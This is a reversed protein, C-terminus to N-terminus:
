AAIEQDFTAQLPTGSKPAAEITFRWSGVDLEVPSVFHGVSLRTADLEDPIGAPTRAQVSISTLPLESGNAGYATIHLQSAGPRDPDVYVQLSRADAFTITVIDPLGNTGQTVTVDPPPEALEFTLPIETSTTAREVTLLGDWRGALGLSTTTASWRGGGSTFEVTEAPLDSRSPLDVRLSVRRADITSGTDYDALVLELLNPGPRGPTITLRARTTTGFDNGSVVVQEVAPASEVEYPPPLGALVGTVGFVGAAIVIEVVVSRLVGASASRDLRPIRVFHNWAAIAVLGTFLAMKYALATGWGTALLHLYEGWGGLLDVSRLVGTVLVVALAVTALHSFRRIAGTRAEPSAGRCGVALWVLGGIWVGVAVVHLWQVAVAIARGSEAAAAHGGLTHFLLAVAAAAGVIAMATNTRRRSAVLAAAGTVAVAIAQRTFPGGTSSALLDGVPVDAARAAAIPLVVAGAAAFAWTIAFTPGVGRIAGRFVVFWSTATALLIALGWYLIWRGAVATPSPTPYSEQEASPTTDPAVGVGFSIANTSSHGDVASVVSYSIKYSGDSVARLGLVITRENAGALAPGAAVSGGSGDVVQFRSLSLDPAETFRLVVESPAEDLIAGQEPTSSDLAAHAAAPGVCVVLTGLAVLAPVLLRLVTRTCSM